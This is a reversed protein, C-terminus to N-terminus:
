RPTKHRIIDDHGRQAAFHLLTISSKPLGPTWQGRHRNIYDITNYYDNHVSDKIPDLENVFMQFQSVSDNARLGWRSPCFIDAITNNYICISRYFNPKVGSDLLLKTTPIDGSFAAWLLGRKRISLDTSGFLKPNNTVVKHLGRNATAFALLDRADSLNGAIALAIEVPLDYFAPM